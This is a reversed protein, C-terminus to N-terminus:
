LQFVIEKQHIFGTFFDLSCCWIYGSLQHLKMNEFYMNRIKTVKGLWISSPYLKVGWRYVSTKNNCTNTNTGSVQKQINWSRAKVLLHAAREVVGGVLTVIGHVRDVWGWVAWHIWSMSLIWCKGPVWSERVVLKSVRTAHVWRLRGRIMPRVRRGTAFRSFRMMWVITHCVCM